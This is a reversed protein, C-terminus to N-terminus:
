TSIVPPFCGERPSFQSLPFWGEFLGIYPYSCSHGAGLWRGDWKLPTYNCSLFFLHNKREGFVSLLRLQLLWGKGLLFRVLGVQMGNRKLVQTFPSNFFSLCGSVMSSSLAYLTSQHLLLLSPFQSSSFFLIVLVKELITLIMLYSYYWKRPQNNDWSKPCLLPPFSM